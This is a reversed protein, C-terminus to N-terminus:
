AAEEPNPGVDSTLVDLRSLPSSPLPAEPLHCRKRVPKIGPLYRGSSLGRKAVSPFM